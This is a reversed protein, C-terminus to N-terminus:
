YFKKIAAVISALEEEKLEPFIPLALVEKAARDAEPFDGEAHNLDAFSPQLPLPSPYYIDTGIGQQQLHARLDDRRQTRIVFQNYSHFAKAHTLPLVLDGVNKLHDLYYQANKRRKEIWQDVYKLKIDLVLAQLAALRFNGGLLFHVYRKESGHVRLARVIRALKESQTTILGGEGFTGLNKTPYFSYAGFTGFTGVPQNNWRSGFAQATDEILPLQHKESIALLADLDCSQGFLHVPMIAKTKTTIATQVAKPNINFTDPLIDVFVPKAGLRAVVSATAYFTFAPVIVEDGPGVELAMLAVLLADTGSSITIATQSHLYDKVHNEFTEVAPGLVLSQKPLFQKIQELIESELAAYQRTLDFQPISTPM